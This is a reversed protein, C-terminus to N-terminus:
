SVHSASLIKITNIWGSWINECVIHFQVITIISKHHMHYHGVYLLHSYIICVCALTYIQTHTHIHIYINATSQSAHSHYERITRLLNHNVYLVQELQIFNIMLVSREMWLGDYSTLCPGGYFHSWATFLSVAGPGKCIMVLQHHQRDICGYKDLRVSADSYTTGCSLM